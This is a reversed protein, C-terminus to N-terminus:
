HPVSTRGSGTAAGNRNGKFVEGVNAESPVKEM